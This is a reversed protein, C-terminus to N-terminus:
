PTLVFSVTFCTGRGDDGASFGITGNIQTVLSHILKMGLGKSKAPDFNGPLGPGEDIVRLVYGAGSTEVNVAISGSGYKVANTILENVIFGLPIGLGVPM